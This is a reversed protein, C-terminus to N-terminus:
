IHAFAYETETLRIPGANTMAVYLAHIRDPAARTFRWSTASYRNASSYSHSEGNYTWGDNKMRTIQGRVFSAWSTAIGPTSSSWREIAFDTLQWQKTEGRNLAQASGGIYRETEFPVGPVPQVVYKNKYTQPIAAWPQGPHLTDSYYDLGYVTVAGHYSAQAMVSGGSPARFDITLSGPTNLFQRVQQATTADPALVHYRVQPAVTTAVGMSPAQPAILGAVLLVLSFM